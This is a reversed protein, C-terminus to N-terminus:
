RTRQLANNAAEAKQRYRGLMAKDMESLTLQEAKEIWDLAENYQKRKLLADIYIRYYNVDIPDIEILKKILEMREETKGQEELL